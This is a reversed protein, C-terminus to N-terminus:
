MLVGIIGFYYRPVFSSCHDINQVFFSNLAFDQGFEESVGFELAEDPLEVKVSELFHFIFIAVPESM